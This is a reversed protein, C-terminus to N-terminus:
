EARKRAYSYEKNRM